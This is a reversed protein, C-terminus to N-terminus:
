GSLTSATLTPLYHFSLVWLGAFTVAVGYPIKPQGSKRKKLHYILMGLTLAGGAFAMVVILQVFWLPTIWLALATLLKADGGGMQNIAMLGVTIAFTALAVGLQIAVGPWLDVGSAWWFVPAFLAIGVNIHNSITRSKIDTFAADLQALALGGLLAFQLYATLEVAGLM